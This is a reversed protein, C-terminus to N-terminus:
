FKEVQSSSIIKETYSHCNFTKDVKEFTTPDLPLAGRPIKFPLARLSGLYLGFNAYAFKSLLRLTNVGVKERESTWKESKKIQFTLNM